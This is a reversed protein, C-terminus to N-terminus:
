RYGGIRPIWCGATFICKFIDGLADLALFFLILTAVALLATVWLEFAELSKWTFGACIICPIAYGALAWVYDSLTYTPGMWDPM